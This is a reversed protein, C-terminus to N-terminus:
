RPEADDRPSTLTAAARLRALAWRGAESVVPDVDDAAARLAAISTADGRNGLVLAANRLLGARKTRVLATGHFRARFAADHLALLREPPELETAPLFSVDRAPRAKRNWPCVEQCVDCGFLWDAIAPRLAHDIPGRHEITLYSICRRADLVYPAVFAQTPCAELCATCTGCRDPVPADPELDATTVVAGIFAYSGLSEDLLNTNKGIWGLGARAALDRELVASTDVAARSEVGPGGAQGLLDVLAALMPRMVDHYDRGRAYRAVHRWSSRCGTRGDGGARLDPGSPEARVAAAPAGDHGPNYSLAVTVVSRAGPLWRSPDAREARTRELYRMSGAYGAEVWREFAGAHPPPDAPGIAVRDFGVELARAKVAHSLALGVLTV